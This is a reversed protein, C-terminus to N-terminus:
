GVYVEVDGLGAVKCSAKSVEKIPVAATAAGALIIWGAKMVVGHQVALASLDILSNIPHGSIEHSYGTLPAQEDIHLTMRLSSVDITAPRWDGVVFHSSSSNDAIVDQLTFQFDKYRSDIIELAPAIADVASLASNPSLVYDVDEALRFAIEPEIRPHIAQAMSIRGSNQIQMDSTLHGFIVQDVGMQIMKAKSTFGVKLGCVRGTRELRKSVLLRQVQYADDITIPHRLTIQGTAVGNRAASDLLTAFAELEPQLM